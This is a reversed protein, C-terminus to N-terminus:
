KYIISLVNNTFYCVTFIIPKKVNRKKIIYYLAILSHSSPPRLTKKVTM